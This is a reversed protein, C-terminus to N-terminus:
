RFTSMRGSMTPSATMLPVDVNERVHYAIRHGAGNFEVGGVIRGGDDLLQDPVGGVQDSAILRLRLEGSAPDVGLHVFAEGYVFEAWALRQLFGGLDSLGDADCRDWFEGFSAVLAARTPKDSVVPRISPGDATLNSVWAGVIAAGEPSNIAFSAARAGALVRTALIERAPARLGPQGWRRGASGADIAARGLLADVARAFRDKVHRSLHLLSAM